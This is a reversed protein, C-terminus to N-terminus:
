REFQTHRYQVSLSEEYKRKLHELMRKDRALQVTTLEEKGNHGIDTNYMHQRVIEEQIEEYVSRTRESSKKHMSEVLYERTVDGPHIIECKRTHEPRMSM